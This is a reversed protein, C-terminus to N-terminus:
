FRLGLQLVLGSFTADADRVLLGSSVDSEDERTTRFVYGLKTTVHDGFLAQVGFGAGFTLGNGDFDESAGAADAEIGTVHAGISADAVMGFAFRDRRIFWFEPEAELRVGFGDWSIEDGTSNDELTVDHLYPGIRLPFRVEDTHVTEGVFYLYLDSSSGEVNPSGVDALLDDDSAMGEISLGGGLGADTLFEARLRLYGGDTDGSAFGGDGSTDHEYNGAGLALDVYINPRPAPAAPSAGEGRNAPSGTTACGAGAMLALLTWATRAM